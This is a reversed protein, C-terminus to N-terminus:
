DSPVDLGALMALEQDTLRIKAAAVNETVHGPDGTGPIALVHPGQHLCWALRIQASTAGHAAAVRRVAEPEDQRSAVSAERADGAITFFPVFAIGLEACRGIVGAADPRQYGLAHRNQVCVIETLAVAEELQELSVNSVGLHRLLGAERCEVLAGLHDVLSTMSPMLRLNVLDLHDRGLQRLNEEVLGRIQDPRATWWEGSPDRHPGVKTAVVIRDRDNRPYAALASNVLENASLLASFYFAATDIHDVGLEVARRIVAISTDRDRPEGRDM